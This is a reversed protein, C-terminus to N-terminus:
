GVYNEASTLQFTQKNLASPSKHTQSLEKLDSGITVVDGVASVLSVPMCVSSSRFRKKFGLHRLSHKFTKSSSAHSAMNCTSKPVKLQEM